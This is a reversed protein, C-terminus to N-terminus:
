KTRFEARLDSQVENLVGVRPELEGDFASVEINCHFSGLADIAWLTPLPKSLLGQLLAVV